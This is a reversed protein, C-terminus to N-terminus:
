QRKGKFIKKLFSKIRTIFFLDGIGENVYVVEPAEVTKDVMNNDTSNEPVFAPSQTDVGYIWGGEVRMVKIYNPHIGVGIDYRRTTTGIQLMMTEHLKLDYITKDSNGSKGHRWYTDIGPNM